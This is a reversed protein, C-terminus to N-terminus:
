WIKGDRKDIYGQLTQGSGLKAKLTDHIERVVGFGRFTLATYLQVLTAGKEIAQWADEGDWIGGCAIIALDPFAAHVDQVMKLMYPFLPRGSEGAVPRAFDRTLPNSRTDVPRTNGVAQGGNEYFVKISAMRGQREEERPPLSSYPAVKSAKLLRSPVHSNMLDMMKKTFEPTQLVKNFDTNPSARNDEFGLDVYPATKSIIERCADLVTDETYTDTIGSFNLLVKANGHKGEAFRRLNEVTHGLGKHPYGQANILAERGDDVAVRRQPNGRRPHLLVSGPNLYGFVYSTPELMDCDKDFGAAMGVPSKLLHGGIAVHLQEGPDFLSANKRFKDAMKALREKAVEHVVEPQSLEGTARYRSYLYKRYLKFVAPDLSAKFTDVLVM